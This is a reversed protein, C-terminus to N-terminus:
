FNIAKIVGNHHEHQMCCKLHKFMVNQKQRDSNGLSLFTLLINSFFITGSEDRHQKLFAKNFIEAGHCTNQSVVM